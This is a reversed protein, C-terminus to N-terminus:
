ARSGGLMENAQKVSADLLQLPSPMNSNERYWRCKAYRHRGYKKAAEHFECNECSRKAVTFYPRSKEHHRQPFIGWWKSPHLCKASRGLFLAFPVGGEDYEVPFLRGNAYTGRKARKPALQLFMWLSPFWTIKGNRTEAYDRILWSLGSIV